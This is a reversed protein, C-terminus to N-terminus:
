CDCGQASVSHLCVTPIALYRLLDYTDQEEKRRLSQGFTGRASAGVSYCGGWGVGCSCERVVGCAWRRLDIHLNAGHEAAKHLLQQPLVVQGFGPLPAQQQAAYPNCVRVSLSQPTPPLALSHSQPLPPLTSSPYVSSGSSRGGSLLSAPQPVSTSSHRRFQQLHVPPAPSLSLPAPLPVSASAGVGRSGGVPSAPAPAPVADLFMSQDCSSRRCNRARDQQPPYRPPEQQLLYDVDDDYDALMDAAGDIRPTCAPPPPAVVGQVARGFSLESQPQAEVPTDTGPATTASVRRPARPQPASQQVSGRQMSKLLLLQQQQQQQGSPHLPPQARAIPQQSPARAPSVSSISAFQGGSPPLPPPYALPGTSAAAHTSPLANGGSLLVSTSM